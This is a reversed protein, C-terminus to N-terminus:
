QEIRIFRVTQDSLSYDAVKWGADLWAHSHSKSGNSWWADFKHASNPLGFGLIEEIEAFSLSLQKEDENVARLHQKLPSYKGQYETDTENLLEASQISGGPERNWPPDIQEVLESELKGRSETDYYFLSVSHQAIVEERLLTNIRCNTEQGGKFCNRPSITGYGQNFRTALDQTEGIYKIESDSYLAYVGSDGAWTTPISFRCFPGWGYRHVFTSNADHYQQQPTLAEVAGGDTREPTIETVYDFSRGSVSLHVESM